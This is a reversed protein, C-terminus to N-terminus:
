SQWIISAAYELSSRKHWNHAETFSAPASISLFICQVSPSGGRKVHFMSFFFPRELPYFPLGWGGTERSVNLFPSPNLSRFPRHGDGDHKVHFM